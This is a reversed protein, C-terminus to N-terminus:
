RKRTRRVRAPSSGRESTAAAVALCSPGAERAVRGRGHGLAWGGRDARLARAGVGRRLLAPLVRIKLQHAPQGHLAVQTGAPHTPPHNPFFALNATPSGPQPPQQLRLGAVGSLCAPLLQLLKSCTQLRCWARVQGQGCRPRGCHFGRRGRGAHAQLLLACLTCRPSPQSPGCPATAGSAPRLRWADRAAAKCTARM